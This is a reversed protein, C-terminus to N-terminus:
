ADDRAKRQLAAVLLRCALSREGWRTAFYDTIEFWSGDNGAGHNAGMCSCQCEHKEAGLCAGRV